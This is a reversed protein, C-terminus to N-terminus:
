VAWDVIHKVHVGPQLGVKAGVDKAACAAVLDTYGSSSMLRVSSVKARIGAGMISFHPLVIM